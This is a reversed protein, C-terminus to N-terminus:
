QQNIDEEIKFKFNAMMRKIEDIQQLLTNTEQQSIYSLRNAIILECEVESASGEAIHIFHVLDKKTDRGCGEAINISISTAARRLQSTLGYREEAPFKKTKEYIEISFDLSKEWFILTKYDRM